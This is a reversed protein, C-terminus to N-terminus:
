RAQEWPAEDPIDAGVILGYIYYRATGFALYEGPRMRQGKYWWLGQDSKTVPVRAEIELLVPDVIGYPIQPATGRVISVLTADPEGSLTPSGFRDVDGPRPRSAYARAIVYHVRVRAVSRVPPPKPADEAQAPRTVAFASAHHALQQAESYLYIDYQGPGLKPLDLVAAEPTEILFRAVSNQRDDLFVSIPEGTRGIYATLYPLLNRGRIRVRLQDAVELTAPEVATIIPAPVRFLVYTAYITPLIVLVAAAAAADVVNFRGFLRGQADIM